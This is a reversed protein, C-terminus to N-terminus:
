AVQRRVDAAVFEGCWDDQAVNPWHAKKDGEAPSPAYRRCESSMAQYFKCNECHM